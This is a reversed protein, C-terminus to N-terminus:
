KDEKYTRAFFNTLKQSVFARPRAYDTRSQAIIQDRLGYETGQLNHLSAWVPVETEERFRAVGVEARMLQEPPVNMEHGFLTADKYGVRFVFISATNNLLPQVM